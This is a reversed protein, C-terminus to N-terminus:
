LLGARVGVEGNAYEHGWEYVTEGGFFERRECHRQPSCVLGSQWFGVEGNAYEHGWEHVTEVGRGM